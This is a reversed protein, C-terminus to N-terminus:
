MSCKMDASDYNIYKIKWWCHYLLQVSLYYRRMICFSIQCHHPIIPCLSSAKMIRPGLNRGFLRLLFFLWNLARWPSSSVSGGLSHFLWDGDAWKLDLFEGGLFLGTTEAIVPISLWWSMSLPSTSTWGKSNGTLFLYLYTGSGSVM